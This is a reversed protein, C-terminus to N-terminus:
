CRATAWGLWQACKVSGTAMWTSHVMGSSWGLGAWGLGAWGLGVKVFSKFKRM